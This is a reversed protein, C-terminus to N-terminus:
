NVTDVEGFKIAQAQPPVDAVQLTAAALLSGRLRVPWTCDQQSRINEHQKLKQAGAASV